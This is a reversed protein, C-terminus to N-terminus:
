IDFCTFKYFSLSYYLHANILEAVVVTYKKVTSKVMGFRSALSRHSEGSGVDYLFLLVCSQLCMRRNWYPSLREVVFDFAERSIRFDRQFEENSFSELAIRAYDCLKRESPIYMTDVLAFLALGFCLTPTDMNPFCTFVIFVTGFCAFSHLM